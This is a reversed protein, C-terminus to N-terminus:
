DNGVNILIGLAGGAAGIGAAVAVLKVVLQRYERILRAIPVVVATLRQALETFVPAVAGGIQFAGMKLVSTLRTWADTLAAASTADDTTMTIGLKKAEDMVAVMGAAGEKLMPLLTTGARGFVVTSIAAKQTNNDLRSLATALTGQFAQQVQKQADQAQKSAYGQM